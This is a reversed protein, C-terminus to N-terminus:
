YSLEEGKIKTRQVSVYIMPSNKKLIQILNKGTKIGQWTVKILHHIFAVAFLVMM